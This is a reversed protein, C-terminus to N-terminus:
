RYPDPRTQRYHAPGNQLRFSANLVAETISIIGFDGQPKITVRLMMNEDEWKLFGIDEPTALLLITSM